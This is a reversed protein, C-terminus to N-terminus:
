QKTKIYLMEAAVQKDFAINIKRIIRGASNQHEPPDLEYGMFACWNTLGKKFKLSSMQSQSTNERFNKLAYSYPIFKNLRRKNFYKKAWAKFIDGDAFPLAAQNKNNPIKYAQKM